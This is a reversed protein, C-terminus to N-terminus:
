TAPRGRPARIVGAIAAAVVIGLILAGAILAGADDGTPKAVMDAVTLYLLTLEVRALRGFIFGARAGDIAGSSQRRMLPARVAANLLVSLGFAALGLRIWLPQFTWSGELVLLIGSVLAGLSAPAFIRPGLARGLPGLRALLDRDNREAYLALLGLATGTGLWVIVSVIHIFLLLEYRSM